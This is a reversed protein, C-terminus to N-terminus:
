TLAGSETASTLIQLAAMSRALMHPIEAGDLLAVVASLFELQM